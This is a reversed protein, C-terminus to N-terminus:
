IFVIKNIYYYLKQSPMANMSILRFDHLLRTKKKIYIPQFFIKIFIKQGTCLIKTIKDNFNM